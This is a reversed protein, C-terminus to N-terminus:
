SKRRTKGPREPRELFPALEAPIAKIGRRRAKQVAYHLSGHMRYRVQDTINLGHAEMAELAWRWAHYEELCRPKYVNFGIAHHGIEHLFVAVSMPGKPRPAEILNQRRGDRYEVYWAVGSMGSRWKRVRIQYRDLMLRVVADYRAQMTDASDASRAPAITRPAAPRALPVPAKERPRRPRRTPAAASQLTSGTPQNTNTTTPAAPPQVPPKQPRLRQRIPEILDWLTLTM